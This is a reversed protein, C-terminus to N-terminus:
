RLALMVIGAITILGGATQIKTIKEKLFIRALIITPLSFAGSLVVIISTFTTAEFGFSFSLVALADFFGIFFLWKWIKAGKVKLSLNMKLAFLLLSVVTAIRLALLSFIWDNSNLFKDWFPFWLSYIIVATIAEPLGKVIRKKKFSFGQTDLSTLLIGIFVIGLLIWRISSITEGLFLASVLVAFAAYSAFIPSIISAQGKELAKYFLLYAVADAIGFIILPIFLQSNFIPLKYNFINLLLFPIIGILQAWFLTRFNDIKDVSKKAFFDAFGWGLMAGLGMAIAIFLQQNM